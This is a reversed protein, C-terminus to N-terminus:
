VAEKESEIPPPSFDSATWWGTGYGSGCAMRCQRSCGQWILIVAPRSRIADWGNGARSRLTARNRNQLGELIGAFERCIEPLGFTAVLHDCSSQSAGVVQGKANIGTAYSCPDGGLVGLDTMEGVRPQQKRMGFYLPAEAFKTHVFMTM